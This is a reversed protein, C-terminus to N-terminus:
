IFAEEIERDLKNEPLEIRVWYGNVDLNWSTQYSDREVRTCSYRLIGRNTRIEHVIWTVGIRSLARTGVPVVYQLGHLGRQTPIGEIPTHEDEM